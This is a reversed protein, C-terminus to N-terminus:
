LNIQVQVPYHDSVELAAGNCTTALGATIIANMLSTYDGSTCTAGTGLGDFYHPAASSAQMKTALSPSLVIRDYTYTNGQAITTDITDAIARTYATAPVFRADFTAWGTAETFYSGDSNFDGVIMVDPDTTYRANAAYPLDQIEQTANTPNTHISLVYFDVSSTKVRAYFPPRTYTGESGGSTALGTEAISISSLRYFVSYKEATGGVGSNASTVQAYTGAGARDDSNLRNLLTCIEVISNAGCSGAGGGITSVEQMFFVDYRMIVKSLLDMVSTKAAKSTGFNQVNWSAVLISSACSVSVDRVNYEPMTGSGNVVRCVLGAPQTKVTVNYQTGASKSGMFVFEGDGYLTTTQYNNLDLVITGKLGTIKGGITYVGTANACAFFHLLFSLYLSKRIILRM